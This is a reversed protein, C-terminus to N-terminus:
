PGPTWKLAADIAGLLEDETFPKILYAVTWGSAAESRAREDSAHATIFIVPLKCQRAMLDRHLEIGTMGPLRIDSILCDTKRAHDSNLFEEASAFVKVDQGVSRILSDLSERVWIDDDVVSILAM